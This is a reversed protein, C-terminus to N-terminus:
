SRCDECSGAKEYYEHYDMVDGCSDCTSHEEWFKENEM